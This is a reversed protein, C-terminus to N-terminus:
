EGEDKYFQVITAEHNTLIKSLKDNPEPPGDIRSDKHTQSFPPDRLIDVLAHLYDVEPDEVTQTTPATEPDKKEADKKKAKHSSTPAEDKSGKPLISALEPGEEQNEARKVLELTSKLKAKIEPTGSFTEILLSLVQLLQRNGLGQNVRTGLASALTADLVFKLAPQFNSPTQSKKILLSLVDPLQSYAAWQIASWKDSGAPQAIRKRKLREKMLGKAVEHIDPYNEARKIETETVDSRGFEATRLKDSKLLSEVASEPSDGTCALYLATKGQENTISM